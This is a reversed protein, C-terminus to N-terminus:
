VCVIPEDGIENWGQIEILAQSHVVDLIAFIRLDVRNSM